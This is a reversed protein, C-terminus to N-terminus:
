EEEWDLFDDEDENEIEYLDINNQLSKKKFPYSLIKYAVYGKFINGFFSSENNEKM